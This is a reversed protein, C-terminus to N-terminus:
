FPECGSLFPRVFEVVLVRRLVMGFPDAVRVGFEGFDCEELVVDVLGFFLECDCEFFEFFGFHGIPVGVGEIFEFM